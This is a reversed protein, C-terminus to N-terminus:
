RPSHIDRWEVHLRLLPNDREGTGFPALKAVRRKRTCGARNREGEWRAQSEVALTRLNVTARFIECQDSSQAEVYNVAFAGDRVTTEAPSPEDAAPQKDCDRALLTPRSRSTDVLWYERANCEYADPGSEKALGIDVVSASKGAPRQRLFTCGARGGCLATMVQPSAAPAADAAAAVAPGGGRGALLVFLLCVIHM